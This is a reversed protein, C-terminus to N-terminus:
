RDRRPFPPEAEANPEYVNVDCTCTIVVRIQCSYAGPSPDRLYAEQYSDQQVSGWGAFRPTAFVKGAHRPESIIICLNQVGGITTPIDM